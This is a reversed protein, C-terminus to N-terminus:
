PIAPDLSAVTPGGTASSGDPEAATSDPEPAAPMHVVTGGPLGMGGGGKGYQGGTRTSVSVATRKTLNGVGNRFLTLGGVLCLSLVAILLVYEVTGAGAECTRLRRILPRV